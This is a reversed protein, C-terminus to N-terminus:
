EAAFAGCLDAVLPLQPLDGRHDVAKRIGKGGYVIGQEVVKKSKGNFFSLALVLFTGGTSGGKLANGLVASHATGIAISGETPFQVGQDSGEVSTGQM